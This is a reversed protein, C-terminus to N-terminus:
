LSELYFVAVSVQCQSPADTALINYGPSNRTYVSNAINTEQILGSIHKGTGDWIHVVVNQWQMWKSHQVIWFPEVYSYRIGGRYSEKGLESSIGLKGYFYVNGVLLYKKGAGRWEARSGGSQQWYTWWIDWNVVLSKWVVWRVRNQTNQVFIFRHFIYSLLM